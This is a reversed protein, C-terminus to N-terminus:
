DKSLRAREQRVVVNNSGAREQTCGRRTPKIHLARMCLGGSERPRVTDTPAVVDINGAAGSSQIPEQSGAPQSPRPEGRLLSSIGISYILTFVNVTVAGYIPAPATTGRYAGAYGVTSGHM